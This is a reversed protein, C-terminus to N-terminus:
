RWLGEQQMLKIWASTPVKAIRLQKAREFLIPFAKGPEFVALRSEASIRKMFVLGRVGAHLNGHNQQEAM